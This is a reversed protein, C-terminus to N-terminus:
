DSIGIHRRLDVYSCQYRHSVYDCLEEKSMEYLAAGALSKGTDRVVAAIGLLAIIKDRPDTCERNRHWQLLEELAVRDGARHIERQQETRLIFSRCMSTRCYTFESCDHDYWRLIPKAWFVLDDWHMQHNGYKLQIHAPLVTEQIIWIRTWYAQEAIYKVTPAVIRADSLSGFEDVWEPSLSSDPGLLIGYAENLGLKSNLTYLKRLNGPIKPLTEVNAANTGVWALVLKATGFIQDMLMVQSSREQLDAQNVCIADIWLLGESLEDRVHLLCQYLNQRVYFPRGDVTIKNTAPDAGWVYSIATFSDGVTAEELHYIIQEPTKGPLLRLLCITGQPQGELSKYKYESEM